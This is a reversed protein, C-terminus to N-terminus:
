IATLSAERENRTGNPELVSHFTTRTVTNYEPIMRIDVHLPIVLEFACKIAKQTM